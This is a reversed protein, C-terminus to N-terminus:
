QINGKNIASSFFTGSLPQITGSKNVSIGQGKAIMGHATMQHPLPDNGAVKAGSLKALAPVDAVRDFHGHTVLILDIKGLAKLDKYVSPTEPHKRLFPNIVIVKSEVSTIRVTAQSLWLVEAEGAQAGHGYGHIHGYAACARGVIRGFANESSAM